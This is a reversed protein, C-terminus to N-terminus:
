VSLMVTAVASPVVWTMVTLMSPVFSAATIPPVMLPATVSSAPTRFPVCGSPVAEVTPPVSVILSTSLVAAKTATVTGPVPWLALWPSKLRSM